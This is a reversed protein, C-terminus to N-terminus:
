YFNATRLAKSILVYRPEVGDFPPRYIRHQVLTISDTFLATPFQSM